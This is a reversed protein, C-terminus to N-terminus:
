PRSAQMDARYFAMGASVIEQFKQGDAYPLTKNCTGFIDAFYQFGGRLYNRVFSDSQVELKTEGDKKEANAFMAFYAMVDSHETGSLPKYAEIYAAELDVEKFLDYISHAEPEYWQRAFDLKGRRNTFEFKAKEVDFHKKIDAISAPSFEEPSQEARQNLEIWYWGFYRQARKQPDRSIWRTVAMLNLLCRVIVAADECLALECLRRITDFSKFARPCTYQLAADYHDRTFSRHNVLSAQAFQLLEYYHDFHEQYKAYISATFQKDDMLGVQQDENSSM